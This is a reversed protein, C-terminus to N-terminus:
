HRVIQTGVLADDTRTVVLERDSSRETTTDYKIAAPSNMRMADM